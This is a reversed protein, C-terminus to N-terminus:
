KLYKAVNANHEELTTAYRTTGDSGTIYFWYSSEKYNAVARISDLSPNCIPTPPLGKNLYLNYPSEYGRYDDRLVSPWWDKENGKAYQISADAQLAWQNKLRKVLIGAVIPRDKEIHMERELISALKILEDESIGNLLAQDFIDQTVKKSFNNRMWSALDEPNYKSDIVYTDPFLYGEKIYKSQIFKDAFEKSLEESLYDYYEEKRWGEIFTLKYQFSGKQFVEFFELLNTDKMDIDYYGAQIHKDPNLFLYIKLIYPNSIIKDEYFKQSIEDVSMGKKITLRYKTTEAEYNIKRNLENNLYGYAFIVLIIILAFIVSFFIIIKKLLSKPKEIEQSENQDNNETM